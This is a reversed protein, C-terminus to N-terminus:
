HFEVSPSITGAAPTSGAVWPKCFRQEVLQALGANENRICLSATDPSRHEIAETASWAEVPNAALNKSGLQNCSLLEVLQALGARRLARM